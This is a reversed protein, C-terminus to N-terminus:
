QVDKKEKSVKHEFGLSRASFFFSMNSKLMEKRQRPEKHRLGGQSTKEVKKLGVSKLSIKSIVVLVHSTCIQPNFAAVCFSVNESFAQRICSSLPTNFTANEPVFFHVFHHSKCAWPTVNYRVSLLGGPKAFLIWCIEYYTRVRKRTIRPRSEDKQMCLGDKVCLSNRGSM